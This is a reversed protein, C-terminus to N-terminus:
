KYQSIQTKRQCLINQAYKSTHIESYVPLPVPGPKGTIIQALIDIGLTFFVTPKLGSWLM